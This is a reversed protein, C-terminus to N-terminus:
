LRRYAVAVRASRSLFRVKPNRRYIGFIVIAMTLVYVGAFLWQARELHKGGATLRSIASYLYIHLAPYSHPLLSLVLAREPSHIWTHRQNIRQRM